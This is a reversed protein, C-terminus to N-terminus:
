RAEMQLESHWNRACRHAPWGLLLTSLSGQTVGFRRILLPQCAVAALFIDLVSLSIGTPM